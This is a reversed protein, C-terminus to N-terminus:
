KDQVDSFECMLLAVSQLATGTAHVGFSAKMCKSDKNVIDNIHIIYNKVAGPTFSSGKLAWSLGLLRDRRCTAEECLM